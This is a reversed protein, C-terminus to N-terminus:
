HSDARVASWLTEAACILATVNGLEIVDGEFLPRLKRPILKQGNVATHNTSGADAISFERDERLEFWAHMKSVSSDRLVIDSNMARGVSVRDLSIRDASARKRLPLVFHKGRGLAERIMAARDAETRQAAALLQAVTQRDLAETKYDLRRGPAQTQGESVTSGLASLVESGEEVLVLLLLTDAYEAAFTAQGRTSIARGVEPPLLAKVLHVLTAL